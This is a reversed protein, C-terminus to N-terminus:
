GKLCMSYSRLNVMCLFTDAMKGEEAIVKFQAYKPIHRCRFHKGINFTYARWIFDGHIPYQVPFSAWRRRVM